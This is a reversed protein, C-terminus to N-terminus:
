RSASQRGARPASTAQTGRQRNQLFDETVVGEAARLGGDNVMHHGAAVRQHEHGGAAAFAQAVLHRGDNRWRRAKPTVTTTDGSIASICSWTPASCSAPTSAAKRLEVRLKSSALATSFRRSRPSMVSSYAAGSRSVVGRKRALEVRRCSRPSSLRNAMSSACQTLWHPWSKRGSYRASVHQVLAVGAHRAHREGGRGVVERAGVDDLPQLQFVRALEDAAKVPGVDAVGDDLLLLGVSCSSRKMSRSCAPSAPMTYQWDRL